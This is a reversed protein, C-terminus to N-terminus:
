FLIKSEVMWKGYEIQFVFESDKRNQSHLIIDFTGSLDIKVLNEKDDKKIKHVEMEYGFKTTYKNTDDCPSSLDWRSVFDIAQERIIERAEKTNKYEIPIGDIKLFGM